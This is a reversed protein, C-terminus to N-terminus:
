GGSRLPDLGGAIKVIGEKALEEKLNELNKNSEAAHSAKEYLHYLIIEVGYHGTLLKAAYRAANLSTESFDIPVIVTNM